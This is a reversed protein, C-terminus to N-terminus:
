KQTKASGGLQALASRLVRAGRLEHVVVEALTTLTERQADTLPDRVRSDILCLTGITVGDYILPAGAYFRIFPEGVVLPNDMFNPHTSADLVEFIGDEMITYNCFAVDRDTECVDLGQFSKFWQRDADMLSILTIEVDFILQCLRTLRDLSTERATDLISLGHLFDVRRDDDAPIPYDSM